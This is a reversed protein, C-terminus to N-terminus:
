AVVELEEVRVLRSVMELQVWGNSISMVTFPMWQEVYCLVPEKYHWNVRDGVKINSKVSDTEIPHLASVIARAALLEHGIARAALLEHRLEYVIADWASTLRLDLKVRIALLLKKIDASSKCGYERLAIEKLDKLRLRAKNKYNAKRQPTKVKRQEPAIQSVQQELYSELEAGAIVQSDQCDCNPLTTAIARQAATLYM